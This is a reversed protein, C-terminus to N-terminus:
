QRLQWRGQRQGKPSGPQLSHSLFYRCTSEPNIYFQHWRVPPINMMMITISLCIICLCGNGCEISPPVHEAGELNNLMVGRACAVELSKSLETLVECQAFQHVQPYNKRACRIDAPKPLADSDDQRPVSYPLQRRAVDIVGCHQGGPASEQPYPASEIVHSPDDILNSDRKKISKSTLTSCPSCFLQPLLNADTPRCRFCAGSTTRFLISSKEESSRHAPAKDKGGANVQLPKVKGTDILTAQSPYFYM